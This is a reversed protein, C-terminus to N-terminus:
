AVRHEGGPVRLVMMARDDKTPPASGRELREIAAAPASSAVGRLAECLAREPDAMHEDLWGDTYLVLADGPGLPVQADILTPEDFLGLLTGHVGIQEAAGWPHVVIPLPHGGVSVTLAAGGEGVEIRALAVTCYRDLGQRLIADNLLRLVGSPRDATLAAARLTHRALGTLVAAEVGKGCVDGVVAIWSGDQVQFVDYFDGGVLDGEGYPSFNAAIQLGPVEPLSPPLLSRQLTRAASVREEYLRANEIASSARAALDEALALDDVSFRRRRHVSALTLAGAPSGHVFLPVKMMSAVKLGRLLALHRDDRAILSLIAGNMRTYLESRGTRIVAGVGAMADRRPQAQHRLSEVLSPNVADSAAFAVTRLMGDEDLVDVTCWDAVRPVALSALRDLTEGYDLRARALLENAEDIFALRRGVAEARNRTARERAVVVSLAVAFVAFAVLGLADELDRVDFSRRPEISYFRLLVTSLATALVAPWVKGIRAILIVATLYLLQPLHSSEVPAVQFVVTVFLPALVGVTFHLTAPLWRSGSTTLPPAHRGGSAPRSSM